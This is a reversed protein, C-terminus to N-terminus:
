ARFLRLLSGNITFYDELDSKQITTTTTSGNETVDYSVENVTWQYDVDGAIGFVTGDSVTTRTDPNRTVSGNALYSLKFNSVSISDDYKEVGLTFRTEGGINEFKTVRVLADVVKKTSKSSVNTANVRTLTVTYDNKPLEKKAIVEVVVGAAPITETLNPVTITTGNLELDSSAVNNIRVELNDATYGAPM